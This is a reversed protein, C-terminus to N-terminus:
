KCSRLLKKVRDQYIKIDGNEYGRHLYNLNGDCDILVSSPMTEVKYLESVKSDPDYLIEFGVPIERLLKDALAKDSDVNVGLLKFGAPEYRKALKDLLPMEQRCPGCWSAWFNVMVVQGRLDSLRVNKGSNSKLTFDKAPGKLEVHKAKAFATCALSALIFAILARNLFHKKM